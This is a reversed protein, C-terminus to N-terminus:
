RFFGRCVSNCVAISSGGISARRKEELNKLKLMVNNLTLLAGVRSFFAFTDAFSVSYLNEFDCKHM